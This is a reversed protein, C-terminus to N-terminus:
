GVTNARQKGAHINTCSGAKETPTPTFEHQANAANPPAEHRCLHSHLELPLTIRNPCRRNRNAAILDRVVAAVVRDVLRDPLDDPWNRIAQGTCGIRSGVVNTNKGLLALATVKKM